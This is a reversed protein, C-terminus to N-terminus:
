NKYREDWHIFNRQNTNIANTLDTAWMPSMIQNRPMAKVHGDAYGWISIGSYAGISMADQAGCWAGAANTARPWTEIGAPIVPQGNANATLAGFAYARQDNRHQMLGTWYTWSIYLPTLFITQAPAGLQSSNLSGSATTTSLLGTATSLTATGSIGFSTPDPAASVGTTASPILNLQRNYTFTYSVPGGTQPSGYGSSAADCRAMSDNPAKWLQVNKIYPNVNIHGSEVQPTLVPSQWNARGQRILPFIDDNDGMYMMVGTLIQKQNSIDATKKAAEKAQAFVPFLIAALIAIIAIVVLLEILTFGKKLSKM